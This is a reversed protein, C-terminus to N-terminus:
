RADSAGIDASGLRALRELGWADRVATDAGTRQLLKALQVPLQEQRAGGGLLLQAPRQRCDAGGRLQGAQRAGAGGRWRRQDPAGLM